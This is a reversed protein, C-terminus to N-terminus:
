FSTLFVRAVYSGFLSSAALKENIQWCLSVEPLRYQQLEGQIATLMKLLELCHGHTETFVGNIDGKRLYGEVKGFIDGMLGYKLKFAEYNFQALREIVVDNYPTALAQSLLNQYTTTAIELNIIARDVWKQLELFDISAFDQTEVVSLFAQVDSNAKLYHHAAMVINQNMSTPDGAGMKGNGSGYGTGAGNDMIYGYSQGAGLWWVLVGVVCLVVM